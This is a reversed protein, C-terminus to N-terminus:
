KRTATIVELVACADWQGAARADEYECERFCGKGEGFKECDEISPFPTVPYTRKEIRISNEEPSTMVTEIVDGVCEPNAQTASANSAVVRWGDTDNGTEFEISDGSLNLTLENPKCRSEECQEGSCMTTNLWEEGFISCIQVILDSHKDTQISSGEGDCNDENLTWSAISYDGKLLTLETNPDTESGCGVWVFGICFISVALGTRIRM